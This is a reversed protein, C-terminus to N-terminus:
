NDATTRFPRTQERLWSRFALLEPDEALDRRYVFYHVRDDAFSTESLPQVLSGDDLRNQVLHRWALGIGMEELVADMLLSFHSFKMDIQEPPVKMAFQKLWLAWDMAPWLKAKWHDASLNLLPKGLLGPLTSIEPNRELFGPTCVPFIEESFLREAVYDPHEELGLTVAADIHEDVGWSREDSLLHLSLEPYRARFQKLRPMLFFRSFSTTTLLTLQQPSRRHLLQRSTAAIHQLASSAALYLTQGETTLEVRRNSRVFLRLQYFQELVQIQRSVAAQTVCIEEAAAKFSCHRAAAEFTRLANLPPLTRRLKDM